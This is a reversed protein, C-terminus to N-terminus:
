SLPVCIIYKNLADIDSVQSLDWTAIHGYIKETRTKNKSFKKLVNIITANTFKYKYNFSYESM